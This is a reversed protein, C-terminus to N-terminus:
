RAVGSLYPHASAWDLAFRSSAIRDRDLNPVDVELVFWGEFDGLVDFATDFDISGRGPETWVRHGWTSTLYDAAAARAAAVANADVDKLHVAGVRERYDRLLGLVDADSWALHGLDPGFDLIAPDTRDLVFRIESEVEIRFGVHPHLAPRVGEAVMARGVAELQHVAEGLRAPDPDVGRAPRAFRAPHFGGCLFTATLGLAAQAAAHRKAAELNAAADDAEEVPIALFGPAPELGFEALLARYADPDMGEPIDSHIARAGLPVLDGFAGRLVQEDLHPVMDPGMVWPLPNVAVKKRSSM